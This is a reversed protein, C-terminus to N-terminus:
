PLPAPTDLQDDTQAPLLRGRMRYSDGKLVIVHAHHLFRDLIATATGPNGFLQGWEGFDLNTTVILSRQEYAKSVLQFMHDAATKDLSVYGLEDLIIVDNRLISRMKSATSGDALSAYLETVLEDFPYCRVRYGAKIAEYGLAVALHTKGVGSPGCLCINEKAEVFDLRALDMFTQRSISTQFAFDFDEIRTLKHFRAAKLRKEQQTLERGEVEQAVLYAVFDKYSPEEQEAVECAADLHERIHRLKLRKLGLELQETDARGIIPIM